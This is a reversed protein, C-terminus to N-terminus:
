RGHPGSGVRRSRRADAAAVVLFVIGVVAAVLAFLMVFLGLVAAGLDAHQVGFLWVVAFVAALVAGALTFAGARALGRLDGAGDAAPAPDTSPGTSDDM